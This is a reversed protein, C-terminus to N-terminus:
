DFEHSSPLDTINLCNGGGGFLYSAVFFQLLALLACKFRDLIQSVHANVLLNENVQNALQLSVVLALECREDLANPVLMQAITESSRLEDTSNLLHDDGFFEHRCWLLKNLRDLAFPM